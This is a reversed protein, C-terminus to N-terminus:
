IKFFNPIKAGIFKKEKNSLKNFEDLVEFVTPNLSLSFKNCYYSSLPKLINEHREISSEISVDGQHTLTNNTQHERWGVQISPLFYKKSGIISSAYVFVDDARTLFDKELPYPIIKKYLEGSISIGTTTCGLWALSRRIIASSKNLCFPLLDNIKATKLESSNKFKVVECFSIDWSEGLQNKIAQHYDHPYFDDCDIFFVQSDEDILNVAANFCSLQGANDKILSIIQPYKKGYDNILSPSNDTSGDDV